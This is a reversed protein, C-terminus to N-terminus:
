RGRNFVKSDTKQPKLYLKMTMEFDKYDCKDGCTFLDVFCAGHEPYTHITAHSEGLLVAMTFGDPEFHYSISDLVDAGSAYCAVHLASALGIENNLAKSDCLQYEATYHTGKFEYASNAGNRYAESAKWTIGIWVFSYMAFICLGLVMLRKFM